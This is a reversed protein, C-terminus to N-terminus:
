KHQDFGNLEDADVLVEDVRWGDDYLKLLAHFPQPKHNKFLSQIEPPMGTLDYLWTADVAKGTGSAGSGPGSPTDSIGSVEVVRARAPKSIAFSDFVFQGYPGFLSQGAPTLNIWGQGNITWYGAKVGADREEGLLKIPRQVIGGMAFYKDPHQEFFANILDKARDRNLERPSASSNPACGTIVVILAALILALGVFSKVCIRCKM